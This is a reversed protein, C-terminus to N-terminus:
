KRSPPYERYAIVNGPQVRADVPPQPRDIGLRAIEADDRAGVWFGVAVGVVHDAAIGQEGVDRQGGVILRPPLSERATHRHEVPLPTRVIWRVARCRM